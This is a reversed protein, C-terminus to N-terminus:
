LDLTEIETIKVLRYEKKNKPNAYYNLFNTRKKASELQEVSFNEHWDHSWKGDTKYQIAYYEKM